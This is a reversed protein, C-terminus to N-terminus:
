RRVTIRAIRENERRDAFVSITLEDRCARLALEGIRRARSRFVRTPGCCTDLVFGEFDGRCDFLVECVNGTFEEPERGQQLAPPLYNLSPPIAAANGGLGDVRGSLYDIYRALVLYWRDAQSLQQLRWKMIALTTEESPLIQGGTLVPIHVQFTGIVYRWRISAVARATVEAATEVPTDPEMDGHTADTAQPDDGPEAADSQTQTVPPPPPPPPASASHTGIRKVTIDYSEGSRVSSPLDVTFLGALNHGSGTPIPVYNLGGTIPIKITHADVATLPSAGYFQTALNVVDTALV